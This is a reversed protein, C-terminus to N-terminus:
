GGPAVADDNEFAERFVQNTLKRLNVRLVDAMDCFEPWLTVRGFTEPAMVSVVTRRRRPQNFPELGYHRCLAVFLAWEWPDPITYTLAIDPERTRLDALRARIRDSPTSGGASEGAAGASREEILRLTAALSAPPV